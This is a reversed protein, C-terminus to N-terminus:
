HLEHIKLLWSQEDKVGHSRATTTSWPIKDLIGLLSMSPPFMSGLTPAKLLPGSSCTQLSPPFPVVRSATSPFGTKRCLSGMGRATPILHSSVSSSLLPLQTTRHYTSSLCSSQPLDHSKEQYSIRPAQKFVGRPFQHSLVWSFHLTAWCHQLQATSSELRHICKETLHNNGQNKAASSWFLPLCLPRPKPQTCQKAPRPHPIAQGARPELSTQSFPFSRRTPIPCLGPHSARSGGSFANALSM